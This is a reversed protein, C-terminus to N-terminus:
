EDDDDEDKDEDMVSVYDYGSIKRQYRIILGTIDPDGVREEAQKLRGIADDFVATSKSRRFIEVGVDCYTRLFDKNDKYRDIANSAYVRAKELIAIRDEELIGPTREARALLLMIKFRHVPGDAKFDNEFLRIETDAKEIENIDILNRILRHRPVRQGPAKSIMKRLLTNRIHKDPIRGIGKEFGCLQLITRIEIDYTPIINDIVRDFLSIYESVDPMKYQAIIDTIVPHRGKWGYTGDKESITYEHIIDILNALSAMVQYAPIGLLRMVLQRHVNIGSSEMAAVLRYIEQYEEPLSAFERLVIDDFKESAFINKLCVFTDSEFKVTLRRKREARSFGSFTNEVLPKLDQNTDVLTLLDEIEAPDLPKLVKECGFKFFNPTKVRPHWLNRSSALVLKLSFSSDAVLLDLLASIDGVHNHADDIFLIGSEGRGNLYGAVARWASPMLTHEPKHEWVYTATQSKTYLVQKALTSKGTGSAGLLVVALRDALELEKSVSSSLSRRFTLNAAIDAYSAPWGNFMASADKSTSRIEHAVDKTVPRLVPFSDIPDNSVWDTAPEAVANKQVEIFFDDLSGFSVKVGRREHLVARNEDETFLVLNVTAPNHSKANIDLAKSIMEKIHADALSYGIIVLDAGSVDMKLSDYLYERYEMTLDYDNESIIIRSHVGDAEDKEITGHLKFLKTSEPVRQTSFDFNSSYVSLDRERRQYAQEILNDYNTTYINKWRYLPLNLLSGTPALKEFLERLSKILQKRGFKQEILSALESLSYGDAEIQYRDSLREILKKVSPAGSPISSGAGFFLVTTEPKIRRALEALPISM